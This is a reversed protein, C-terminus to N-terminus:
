NKVLLDRIDVHVRAEALSMNHALRGELRSAWNQKKADFVFALHVELGEKM